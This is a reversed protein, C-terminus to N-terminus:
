VVMLAPTRLVYQEPSLSFIFDCFGNLGQEPAVNFEVGSFLSVRRGALRRAEVLVPMIMLESRAKETGIALGLPINEELAARLIQSPEVVAVQVFLDTQEDTSLGFRQRVSDFNFESYAM